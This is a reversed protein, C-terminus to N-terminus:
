NSQRQLEIEQWQRCILNRRRWNTIDLQCNGLRKRWHKWGQNLSWPMSDAEEIHSLLNAVEASLESVTVKLDREKVSMCDKEEMLLANNKRFKSVEEKLNADIEEESVHVKNEIEKYRTQTSWHSLISKKGRKQQRHFIM